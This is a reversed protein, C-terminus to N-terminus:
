KRKCYYDYSGIEQNNDDIIPRKLVLETKTLKEITFSEVYLNEENGGKGEGYESLKVIFKNGNLIWQGWMRSSPDYLAFMLTNNEYVNMYGPYYEKQNQMGMDDITNVLLYDLNWDGVISVDKPDEKGPTEPQNQQQCANFGFTMVLLAFISMVSFFKKMKNTQRNYGM